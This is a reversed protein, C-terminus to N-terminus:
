RIKIINESLKYNYIKVINGKLLEPSKEMYHHGTFKSKSYDIAGTKSYPLGFPANRGFEIWMSYPMNPSVDYRYYGKSTEVPIVVISNSLDGSSKDKRKIKESLISRAGALTIDALAKASQDNTKDIAVFIKAKILNLTPILNNGNKVIINSM